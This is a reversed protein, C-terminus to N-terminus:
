CWRCSRCADPLLEPIAGLAYPLAYFLDTPRIGCVAGNRLWKFQQRVIPDETKRYEANLLLRGASVAVPLVPGLGPRAALAPRRGSHRDEAHRHRGGHVSCFDAAAAPLYLMGVHSRSRFWRRREPFTLCFHLFITPAFLGAAVNVFYVLNDFADLNGTYHFTFAAFSTLCLIYFHQAKQASGRRFYVFLGILLYAAGIADLYYM